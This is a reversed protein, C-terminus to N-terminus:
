LLLEEEVGSIDNIQLAEARTSDRESPGKRTELARDEVSLHSYVAGM